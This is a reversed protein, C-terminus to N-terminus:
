LSRRTRMRTATLVGEMTLEEPGAHNDVLLGGVEEGELSPCQEAIEGQVRMLAPQEVALEGGDVHQGSVDIGHLLNQFGVQLVVRTALYEHAKRAHAFKCGVGEQGLDPLDSTEGVTPRQRRVGSQKRQVALARVLVKALAGIGGAITIETPGNQFRDGARATATGAHLRQVRPDFRLMRTLRALRADGHGPLQDLRRM